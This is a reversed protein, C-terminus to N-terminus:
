NYESGPTEAAQKPKACKDGWCIFSMKTHSFHQGTSGHASLLTDGHCLLTAVRAVHNKGCWGGGAASYEAMNGGLSLSLPPFLSPSFSQIGPHPPCLPPLPALGSSFHPAFLGDSHYCTWGEATCCATLPPLLVKKRGKGGATQRIKTLFIRKKGGSSCTVLSIKM